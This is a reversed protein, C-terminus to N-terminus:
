GMSMLELFSKSTMCFRRPHSLLFVPFRIWLTANHLLKVVNYIHFKQSILYEMLGQLRGTVFVM